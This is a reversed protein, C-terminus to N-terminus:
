CYSAHWNQLATLCLTTTLTLSLTAATSKSMNFLTLSTLSAASIQASSLQHMTSLAWDTLTIQHLLLLCDTIWWWTHQIDDTQLWDRGPSCGWLVNLVEEVGDVDYIVYIIIIYYNYNNYHSSPLATQQIDPANGRAQDCLLLCWQHTMQRSRNCRSGSIERCWRPNSNGGCSPITVQVVTHLRWM